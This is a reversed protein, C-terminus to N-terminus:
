LGFLRLIFGLLLRGSATGGILFFLSSVIVGVLIFPVAISPNNKLFKFFGDNDKYVTFDAIHRDVKNSLPLLKDEFDRLKLSFESFQGIVGKLQSLIGTLDKNQTDFKSYVNNMNTELKILEDKLHEFHIELATIRNSLKDDSM